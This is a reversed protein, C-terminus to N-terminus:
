EKAEIIAKELLDAVGLATAWRRLYALDLQDAQIKLMGLVDRWQRESIEDGLRYWELKILITDEATSIYAKEEPDIAVIHATRRSFRSQDFPRRKSVFIDIKFMSDLHILNFSRRQRIAEQVADLDIYFRDQLAQVLPRAHKAELEAILDTDLTARTVGHVASALSGGIMYPVELTDLVEIVDLTAAIQESHM